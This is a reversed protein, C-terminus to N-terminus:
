GVADVGTEMPLGEVATLGPFNRPRNLTENCFKRLDKPINFTNELFKLRHQFKRIYHQNESNIRKRLAVMGGHM